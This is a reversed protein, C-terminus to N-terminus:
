NSLPELEAGTDPERENQADEPSAGSDGPVGELV